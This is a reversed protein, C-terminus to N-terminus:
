DNSIKRLKSYTEIACAAADLVDQILQKLNFTDSSSPKYACGSSSILEDFQITLTGGIPIISNALREVHGLDDVSQQKLVQKITDADM